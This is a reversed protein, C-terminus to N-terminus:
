GPRGGRGVVASVAVAGTVEGHTDVVATVVVHGPVTTGDPRRLAAAFDYRDRMGEVLERWLPAARLADARTMVASAPRGVIGPVFRRFVPNADVVRGERDLELVGVAPRTSSPGTGNRSRTAGRRRASGCGRASLLDALAGTRRARPSRGVRPLRRSLGRKGVAAALLRGGARQHAGRGAPRARLPRGAAARHAPRDGAVSSDRQRQAAAEARARTEEAAAESEQRLRDAARPAAAHMQDAQERAAALQDAVQQEREQIESSRQAAQQELLSARSILTQEVEHRHQEAENRAQEIISASERSANSRIEVAEQEAMRLLKEARFGFSEQPDAPEHASRARVERLEVAAADARETAAQRQRREDALQAKLRSIEKSRAAVFDDVQRREYGRLATDFPQEAGGEPTSLPPNATAPGAM